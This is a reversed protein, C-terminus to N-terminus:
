SSSICESSLQSVLEKGKSMKKGNANVLEWLKYDDAYLEERVKKLLEPTFYKEMKSNSGKSHGYVTDAASANSVENKQQFGVHVTHNAPHSMLNCMGAQKMIGRSGGHIFHKGHSNWLGVHGLLERTQDAANHLDGIFQFRDLRESLGCSYVQPRWHPDSCWSLGDMGNKNTQCHTYNNPKSLNEIFNDFILTGNVGPLKDKKSKVKDLYASLLREAPDRIFAAWTWEEDEWIRRQVRPDLKDFQFSNRDMKYHPLSPYDKAGIYFRLFQEWQTIGVKPIGCFALKALPFIIVHQFAGSGGGNTVRSCGAPPIGDVLHAPTGNKTDLHPKQCWEVPPVLKKPSKCKTKLQVSDGQGPNAMPFMAKEEASNFPYITDNCARENYCTGFCLLDKPNRTHKHVAPICCKKFTVPQLAEISMIKSQQPEGVLGYEDRDSNQADLRMEREPEDFTPDVFEDRNYSASTYIHITALLLCLALIWKHLAKSPRPRQKSDEGHPPSVM